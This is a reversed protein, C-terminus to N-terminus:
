VGVDADDEVDALATEIWSPGRVAPVPAPDRAALVVAWEALENAPLAGLAVASRAVEVQVGWLPDGPGIVRGFVARARDVASREVDAASVEGQSIARAVNLAAKIADDETIL